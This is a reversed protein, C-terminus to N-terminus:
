RGGVKLLLLALNQQAARYDPKLRLAAEYQAVADRARGPTQALALGLNFHADASDPKLRVAAEFYPIADKARGNNLLCAGLNNSAEANDPRIRLAAEFEPIADADRGPTRSLALALNAHAEASAPKFRVVAEYYPIAEKARGSNLLCFALNDNSDAHNPQFRQAAQFHPVAEAVRGAKMLYHGLNYHSQWNDGTIALARRFITESNQWYAAEASALTLCVVGSIVAAAVIASKTQPWKRVIDAAGWAVVMSLGVMPIYMYRDAHSQLGVQVLGIVPVLTGLYWFWGTTIYAARQAGARWVYIAVASVGVICAGAAVAQWTEIPLRYPYFVALGTPWFMQGIYTVYSILANEIRSSLPLSVAAERVKGQVWFTVTAAAASLAFLPIKEWLMKPWQMRGLPWIDFLLLTFPFTVLMPKSMLGLCFTAAVLLYRGLGPRETYRVYFYLALFWFFTSLVDKREAIWAVSGVHLPHLAFVFAVFASPWRARTARQLLVFLLVASLAHLVVNVLHHMGSAMGFLQCDLMHSLLTLPMWNASVVATFAWKITAPTVGAMVHVNEYVDEADDYNVFDFHIVQAYVALISLILGFWIALDLLSQQGAPEILQKTPPKPYAKSPKSRTKSM